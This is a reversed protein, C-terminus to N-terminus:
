STRSARQLKSWEADLELEAMRKARRRLYLFFGVFGGQVAFTVALMVLIGLKTGDVMATEEAGFCVPCALVTSAGGTIIFAATCAAVFGLRLRGQALSALRLAQRASAGFPRLRAQRASAGSPRLRTMAADEDEASVV